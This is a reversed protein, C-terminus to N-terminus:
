DTCTDLVLRGSLRVGNNPSGLFVTSGASLSGQSLSGRERMM